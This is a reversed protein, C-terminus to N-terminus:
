PRRYLTRGHQAKPPYCCPWVAGALWRLMLVDYGAKPELPSDRFSFPRGGRLIVPGLM